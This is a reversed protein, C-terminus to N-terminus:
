KRMGIIGYHITCDKGNTISLKGIITTRTIKVLLLAKPLPAVFVGCPQGSPFHILKDEISEPPAGLCTPSYSHLRTVLKYTGPQLECKQVVPPPQILFPKPTCACLSLILGCFLIFTRM